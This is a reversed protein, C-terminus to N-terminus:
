ILIGISIKGASHLGMLLPNTHFNLVVNLRGNASALKLKRCFEKYIFKILYNFFLRFKNSM